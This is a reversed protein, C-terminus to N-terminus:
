KLEFVLNELRQFFIMQDQMYVGKEYHSISQRLKEKDEDPIEKKLLGKAESVLTAMKYKDVGKQQTEEPKKLDAVYRGLVLTKSNITRVIKILEDAAYFYEKRDQLGKENWVTKLTPVYSEQKISQVNMIPSEIKGAKYDNIDLELTEQHFELLKIERQLNLIVDNINEEPKLIPIM